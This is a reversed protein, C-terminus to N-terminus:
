FKVSVGLRVTHFDFDDEGIRVNNFIDEDRDFNTFRYELRTTINNTFAWEVGAGITWGDITDDGGDFFGNNSFGGSVGAFAFGGTAYILLRDFAFGARARISGLWDVTNPGFTFLVPNGAADRLVVGDFPDEDDDDGFVGEIDGELGVVFSGFQMNYGAHVGALFGDSDDRDFDGTFPVLAGTLPDRVFLGGPLAADDNDGWGYGVQAGVYFGTWTFVPVAAFTPAPAMPATRAPLDAASAAGATMLGAAAVGALLLKKM